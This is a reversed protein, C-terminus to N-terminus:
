VQKKKDRAALLSAAVTAGGVVGSGVSMGTAVGAATDLAESTVAFKRAMELNYDADEAHSIYGESDALPAAVSVRDYDVLGTTSASVGEPRMLTLSNGNENISQALEINGSLGGSQSRLTDELTDGLFTGEAAEPVDTMVQEVRSTAAEENVSSAHELGKAGAFLSIAIAGMAGGVKLLKLVRERISDSQEAVRAEQVQEIPTNYNRAM